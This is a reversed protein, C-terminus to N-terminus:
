GKVASKGETKKETDVCAMRFSYWPLGGKLRGDNRTQECSFLLVYREAKKM